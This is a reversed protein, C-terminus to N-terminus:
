YTLNRDGFRLLRVINHMGWIVRKCKATFYGAQTPEDKRHLKVRSICGYMFSEFGTITVQGLHCHNESGRFLEFNLSDKMAYMGSVEARINM